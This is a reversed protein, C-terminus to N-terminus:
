DRIPLRLPPTHHNSISVEDDLKEFCAIVFEFDGLAGELDPPNVSERSEARRAFAKLYSDDSAISQTCDSIAESIKGLRLRCAARNSFYVARARNRQGKQNQLKPSYMMPTTNDLPTNVETTDRTHKTADATSDRVGTEDYSEIPTDGSIDGSAVTASGESRVAEDMLVDSAGVVSTQLASTYHREADVWRGEGFAANGAAKHAEPDRNRDVVAELAEETIHVM